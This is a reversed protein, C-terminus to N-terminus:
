DAVGTSPQGRSDRPAQARPDHGFRAEAAEYGEDLTEDPLQAAPDEGHVVQEEVPSKRGRGATNEETM